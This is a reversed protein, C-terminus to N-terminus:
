ENFLASSFPLATKSKIQQLVKAGYIGSLIECKVPLVIELARTLISAQLATSRVIASKFELDQITKLVHSTISGLLKTTYPTGMSREIVSQITFADPLSLKELLHPMIDEMEFFAYKKTLSKLALWCEDSCIVIFTQIKVLPWPSQTLTDRAIAIESLM